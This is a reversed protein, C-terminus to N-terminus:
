QVSLPPVIVAPRRRPRHAQRQLIHGEPDRKEARCSRRCPGHSRRPLSREDKKARFAVAVLAERTPM